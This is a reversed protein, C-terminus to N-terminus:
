ECRRSAIMDECLPQYLCVMSRQSNKRDHLITGQYEGVIGTHLEKTIDKVAM